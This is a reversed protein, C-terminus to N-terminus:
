IKVYNKGRTSLASACALCIWASIFQSDNSQQNLQSTRKLIDVIFIIPSKISQKNFQCIEVLYTFYQDSIDVNIDRTVIDSKINSSLLFAKAMDALYASPVFAAKLDVVFNADKLSRLAEVVLENKPNLANIHELDETMIDLSNKFRDMISGPENSSIAAISRLLYQYVDKLVEPVTSWSEWLSAIYLRHNADYFYHYDLTHVIIENINRYQDELLEWSVNQEPNIISNDMPKGTLSGFALSYRCYNFIIFRLSDILTMRELKGSCAKLFDRHFEPFSENMSKQNKGKFIISLIERVHSHLMEHSLTMISWRISNTANLVQLAVSVSFETERFGLRGSFYVLKPVLPEREINELYSDPRCKDLQWLSVDYNKLSPFFNVGQIKGFESDIVEDIPNSELIDEIFQAFATIAMVATGVGLLSYSRINCINNLIPLTVSYSQSIVYSLASNLQIIRGVRQNIGRQLKLSSIESFRLSSKSLSEPPTDIPNHLYILEEVIEDVAKAIFKYTYLHNPIYQAAFYVATNLSHIFETIVYQMDKTLVNFSRIKYDDKSVEAPESLYFVTDCITNREVTWIEYGRLNSKDIERVSQMIGESSTIVVISPLGHNFWITKKEESNLIDLLKGLVEFSKEFVFFGLRIKETLDPIEFENPIVPFIPSIKYDKEYWGESNNPPQDRFFIKKKNGSIELFLYRTNM